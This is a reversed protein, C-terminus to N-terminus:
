KKGGQKNLYKTLINIIKDKLLYYTSGYIRAELSNGNRNKNPINIKYYELLEEFEDIIKIALQKEMKNFQPSQRSRVLMFLNYIRYLPLLGIILDILNNM